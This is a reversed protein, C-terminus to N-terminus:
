GFWLHQGQGSGLRRRILSSFDSIRFGFDSVFEFLNFDIFEFIRRLSTSARPIRNSRRPGPRKSGQRNSIQIQKPNRIESKPNGYCGEITCTVLAFCMRQAGSDRKM